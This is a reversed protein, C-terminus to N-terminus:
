KARHCTMQLTPNTKRPLPDHTIFLTFPFTRPENQSKPKEKLPSVLFETNGMLKQATGKDRSYGQHYVQVLQHATFPGM